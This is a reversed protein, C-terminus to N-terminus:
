YARHAVARSNPAGRFIPARNLHVPQVGVLVPRTTETEVAEALVSEDSEIDDM